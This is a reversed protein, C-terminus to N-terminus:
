NQEGPSRCAGRHHPWHERQCEVSCYYVHKCRSCKKPQTLVKHCHACMRDPLALPTIPVDTPLGYAAAKEESTRPPRYGAFQQEVLGTSPVLDDATLSTLDNKFGVVLGGPKLWEGGGSFRIFPKNMALGKVRFHHDILMTMGKAPTSYYELPVPLDTSPSFLVRCAEIVAIRKRIANGKRAEETKRGDCQYFIELEKLSPADVAPDFVVVSITEFRYPATELPLDYQEKLRHIRRIDRDPMTAEMMSVPHKEGDMPDTLLWKQELLAILEDVPHPM